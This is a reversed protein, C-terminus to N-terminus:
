SSSAFCAREFILVHSDFYSKLAGSSPRVKVYVGEKAPELIDCEPVNVVSYEFDLTDMPVEKQRAYAQAHWHFFGRM